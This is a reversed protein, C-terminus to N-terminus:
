ASSPVKYCIGTFCKHNHVFKWINWYIYIYIYRKVTQHNNYITALTLLKQIGKMGKNWGYYHVYM